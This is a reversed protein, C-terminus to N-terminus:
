RYRVHGGEVRHVRAEKREEPLAKHHDVVGGKVASDEVLGARPVAHRGETRAGPVARHQRIRLEGTHPICRLRIVRPVFELAIVVRCQPVAPCRECCDRPYSIFKASNGLM